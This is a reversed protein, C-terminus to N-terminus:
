EKALYSFWGTLVYKEQTNSVLGRHTHTWDAPWILTLGKKPKIKLNQHFFETEGGDEVDNLYTMFVLHRYCNPTQIQHRETHWVKFGGDPPIYHQILVREIIGWPSYYNCFPYVEIYKKAIESLATIYKNGLDGELICDISNKIEKDVSYQKGIRGDFKHSQNHYEILEDCIKIDSIYDQFIFNM